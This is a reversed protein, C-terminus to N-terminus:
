IRENEKNEKRLNEYIYKYEKFSVLYDSKLKGQKRDKDTFYQVEKYIPLSDTFISYCYSDYYKFYKNSVLMFKLNDEIDANNITVVSQAGKDSNYTLEQVKLCSFFPLKVKHHIYLYDSLVYKLSYHLDSTSQSNVICLCDKGVEHRFLKFFLTLRENMENNKYTMQDAILSFEDLLLISGKAFRYNKRFLLNKTVVVFPISSLKMNSYLLPEELVKKSRFLKLLFKKFKYRRLNRKYCRVALAVSYFSKGTGLSGDIFVINKLKPIKCFKFYFWFGFCVCLIAIILWIM